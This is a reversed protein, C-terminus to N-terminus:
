VFVFFKTRLFMKRNTAAEDSNVKKTINKKMVVMAATTLREALAKDSIGWLDAVKKVVDPNKVSAFGDGEKKFEINGMNLVGATIAWLGMMESDIRMLKMSEALEK